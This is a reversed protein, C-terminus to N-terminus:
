RFREDLLRNVRAIVDPSSLIEVHGADFARVSAAQEQAELRAQSAVSVSGDNATKSRSKMRFGLVIHFAVEDPLGRTRGEHDHFLSRLYASTPNMDRFSPPLAIRADAAKEASVSGGWPTALTVFLRVDDRGMEEAYALIAGRSVLGGMSHAVIALAEFGHALELRALLTALHNAIRDLAFGSPYFYFWPQFRESDLAEVLPLFDQPSGGIGHVFLVPVRDPHYPALFYIGALGENLFDMMQWLGRRGSRGGFRADRLDSCVEGQASWAWLSFDLQDGPTRAVLGFVDIPETVEPPTTADHALRLDQEVVQGAGVELWRAGRTWQMREGPDLRGSQNRDEYAGLAYRGPTVAFAFSGADHRVFTDVGVLPDGEPEGPRALVVVLPGEAPVETDIRGEIRGLQRASRAQEEFRLADRLTACGTALAALAVLLWGANRTHATVSPV